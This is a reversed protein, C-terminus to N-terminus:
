ATLRRLRLQRIRRRLASLQQPDSVRGYRLQVYLRGIALLEGAQAPYRQAAAECLSDPGLWGPVSMGARRLKDRLRQWLAVLPDGRRTRPLRSLLYALGVAFALGSLLLVALAVGKLHPVGLHEFLNRQRDATFGVVWRHWGLDVADVLWGANRWLSQLAGDDDLQFVVQDSDGSEVPDISREIREPAVASTPDVRWWGLGDIWVETWAHADSQRVVWHEAHPNREGGQYGLVVRTPIGALRMLLAFSGAYHECFGRRTEFLFQDVVDGELAGPALTYVFPENRFYTLAKEVLQLPESSDIDRQWDAVLAKVRSSVQDPIQLALRRQRGDLSTIRLGPDSTVRYSLRRQVRESSVLSFDSNVRTGAPPDTVLDLGFLWYEGTPELTIEYTLAEEADGRPPTIEFPPRGASWSAGDTQWLVPGRWYRQMNDPVQEDFRVRFATASSRSLKGIDGLTLDGSIGTVASKTGIGWLPTQLRPFVLFLVLAIPLAAALMRLTNRLELQLDVRVRNLSVQLSILGLVGLMLYGALPLSQDYLFHTLVLFYGLFITVHIDRRTRLELLKLGLMVVLLATGGLRGDQLGSSVVVLAIALATLLLLLWRGPFWRPHRIALLRWLAAIYFFALIPSGLNAVHPLMLGALVFVLASLLRSPIPLRALADIM